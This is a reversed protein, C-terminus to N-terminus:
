ALITNDRVILKFVSEPIRHTRGGRSIPYAQALLRMKETSCGFKEAAKAYTFTRAALFDEKIALKLEKTYPVKEIASARRVSPTPSRAEDILQKIRRQM